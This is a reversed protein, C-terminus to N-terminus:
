YLRTVLRLDIRGAINKSPITFSLIVGDVKVVECISGSQSLRFTDGVKYRNLCM